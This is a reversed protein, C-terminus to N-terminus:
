MFFYIIGVKLSKEFDLFGQNGLIAKIIPTVMQSPRYEYLCLQYRKTIFDWSYYTSYDSKDIVILKLVLLTSGDRSVLWINFSNVHEPKMYMNHIVWLCVYMGIQNTSRILMGDM